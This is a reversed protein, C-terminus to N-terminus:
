ALRSRSATRFRLRSSRRPFRLAWPCVPNSGLLAVTQRDVINPVVSNINMPTSM